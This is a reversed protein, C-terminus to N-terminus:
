TSVFTDGGSLIAGLLGYTGYDIISRNSTAMELNQTPSNTKMVVFSVNVGSPIM